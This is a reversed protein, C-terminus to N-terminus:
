RKLWGFLGGNPGREQTQGALLRGQQEVIDLLRWEREQAAKERAEAVELQRQLFEIQRALVDATTDKQADSSVPAQAKRDRFDAAFIERLKPKKVFFCVSRSPVYTRNALAEQLDLLNEEQRAEFRLANLTNRKNRRCALYQRYLNEFTFLM